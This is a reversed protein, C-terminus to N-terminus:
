LVNRCGTELKKKVGKQDPATSAESPDEIIKLTPKAAKIVLGYLGGDGKKIKGRKQL